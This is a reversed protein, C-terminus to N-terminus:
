LAAAAVFLADLQEGTLGLAGILSQVLSSEREVTGAFEWEIRAEDGGEDAPIAAIYANVQDYLGAAKLALRAQRM